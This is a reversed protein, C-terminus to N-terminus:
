AGLGLAVRQTRRVQPSGNFRALVPLMYSEDVARRSGLPTPPPPLPELNLCCHPSPHRPLLQLFLRYAWLTQAWGKQLQHSALLALWGPLGQVSGPSIALGQWRAGLLPLARPRQRLAGAVRGRDAALEGPKLDLFPALEEAVVTGGRAQIYRGVQLPSPPPACPAAYAPQRM